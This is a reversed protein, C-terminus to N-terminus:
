IKWISYVSLNQSDSVRKKRVRRIDGGIDIEKQNIKAGNSVIEKCLSFNTQNTKIKDIHFAIIKLSLIQNLWFLPMYSRRDMEYCLIRMSSLPFHCKPKQVEDPQQSLQLLPAESFRLSTCADLLPPYINYDATHNNLCLFTNERSNIGSSYSPSSFTRRPNGSRETMHWVM